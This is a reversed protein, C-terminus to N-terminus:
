GDTLRRVTPMLHRFLTSLRVGAMTLAGLVTAVIWLAAFVLLDRREGKTYLQYGQIAAMAIMFLLFSVMLM